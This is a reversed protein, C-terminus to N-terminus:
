VGDSFIDGPYKDYDFLEFDPRFLKLIMELDSVNLTKYAEILFERKQQLLLNNPVIQDKITKLVKNQFLQTFNSSNSIIQIYSVPVSTRTSIYGNFQFARWLKQAILTRNYCIAKISGKLDFNYKILMKVEEDVNLTYSVKDSVNRLGFKNFIYESDKEFTELKGLVEFQSHCPSCIRYIPVFHENLNEDNAVKLIVFKIFEQFSVDNGCQKEIDSANIRVMKVINPSVSRWFDPLFIKDIYASWLRSYPDRAFMFSNVHQRSILMRNIPNSLSVVQITKLQGYHVKMRDIDAPRSINKGPYDSAIFRLVRKWFTCGVKPTICYVLHKPSYMWAYGHTKLNSINAENAYEECKEMATNLRQKM